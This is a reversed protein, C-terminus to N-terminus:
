IADLMFKFEILRSGEAIAIFIFGIAAERFVEMISSDSHTVRSDSLFEEPRLEYLVESLRTLPLPPLKATDHGIPLGFPIKLDYLYVHSSLYSVRSLVDLTMM